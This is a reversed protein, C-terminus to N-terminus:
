EIGGNEYIEALALELNTIQEQMLQMKEEPTPEPERYNENKYFGEEETYCYKQIEINEPIEAVEFVGKELGKAIALSGNDVLLNGNEQYDLTESIYFIVDDKNTIIYM